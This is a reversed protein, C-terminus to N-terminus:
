IFKEVNVVQDFITPGNDRKATDFGRSCVGNV